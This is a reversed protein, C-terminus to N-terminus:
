LPNSSSTPKLSQALAMIASKINDANWVANCVAIGHIDTEIVQAVNQHDIGGIAFAPVSITRAVQTALQLGVFESFSKTKSAFTPGVGLYNAGDLVAKQAQELSHTSVGILSDPSVIRRAAAVDLDDQGLHVGDAKSLRALDPRDNVIFRVSTERTAKRLLQCRALLDRDSLMKDRVQIILPCNTERGAQIIQDIRSSFTDASNTGDVLLYLQYERLNQIGYLLQLVAAELSYTRYRLLEFPRYPLDGSLKASEELTRLAQQTRKLNAIIFSEDSSRKGETPTTIDRGVDSQSNRLAHRRALAPHSIAAALEHRISKLESSLLSEDLMFRLFDETARLGESARNACADMIRLIDQRELNM